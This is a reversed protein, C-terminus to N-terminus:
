RRSAQGYSRKRRAMAGTDVLETAVKVRPIRTLLSANWTFHLFARAYVCFALSYPAVHRYSITFPCNSQGSPGFGPPLIIPRRMFETHIRMIRPATPRVAM